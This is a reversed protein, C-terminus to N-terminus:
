EETESRVLLLPRSVRQLIGAAVSGYFVQALGSRGHSALAILDADVREAADIIARVVPGQGLEMRADIGKERFEGQISMLYSRVEKTVRELEQRHHVLDPQGPTVVLPPPEVVQFFIVKAEYRQALEEVHPLIAEARKSGDLPVLINKYM